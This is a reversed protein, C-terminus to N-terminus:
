PHSLNAYGREITRKEYKFEAIIKRSASLKELNWDHTSNGTQFGTKRDGITTIETSVCEGMDACGRTHM